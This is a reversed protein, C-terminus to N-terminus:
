CQPLREPPLAYHPNKARWQDYTAVVLSAVVWTHDRLYVIVYDQASTRGVITYAKNAYQAVAEETAAPYVRRILGLIVQRVADLDSAAPARPPEFALLTTLRFFDQPYSGHTPIEVV